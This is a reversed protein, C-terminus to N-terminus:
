GLSGIWVKFIRWGLFFVWFGFFVVFLVGGVGGMIDLVCYAM